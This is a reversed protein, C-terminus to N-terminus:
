RKVRIRRKSGHRWKTYRVREDGQDEVSVFVAADFICPFVKARKCLAQVSDLVFEYYEEDSLSQASLPIPFGFDKLWKIIRSDLPIEYRTLGLWQLMNRSQKPGFGKLNQSVYRAVEREREVAMPTELREFERKLEAWGEGSLWRFDNEIELGIRHGRRLGHHTIEREAYSALNRKRACKSFRLLDPRNQLFQKVHSNPGSKQQTTLLCGVMTKWVVDRRRFRLVGIRDINRNRRAEVFPHHTYKKILDSVKNIDRKEFKWVIQRTSM